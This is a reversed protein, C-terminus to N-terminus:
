TTASTPALHCIDWSGNGIFVPASSFVSHTSALNRGIYNTLDVSFTIKAGCNSMIISLNKLLMLGVNIVVAGDHHPTHLVLNHFTISDEVDVWLRHDIQGLVIIVQQMIYVQGNDIKTAPIIIKLNIRPQAILM